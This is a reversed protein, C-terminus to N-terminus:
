QRQGMQNEMLIRICPAKDQWSWVHYGETEGTVSIAATSCIEWSCRSIGKWSCSSSPLTLSNGNVYNLAISDILITILDEGAIIHLSIYPIHLFSSFSSIMQEGFSDSLHTINLGLSVFGNCSSVYYMFLKM